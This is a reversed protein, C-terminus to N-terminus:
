TKGSNEILGCFLFEELLLQICSVECEIVNEVTLNISRPEVVPINILDTLGGSEIRWVKWWQPCETFLDARLLYFFNEIIKFGNNIFIRAAYGGRFNLAALLPIKWISPRGTLIDYKFSEPFNLSIFPSGLQSELNSLIIQIVAVAQPNVWLLFKTLSGHVFLIIAFKYAFLASSSLIRYLSYFFIISNM